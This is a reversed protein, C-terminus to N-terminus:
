GIKITRIPKQKAEEKKPISINLVGDKYTAAIKDANASEPLTFSRRFSQYNFERMTYKGNEDKEENNSEKESSITLQNNDAEVKFDNKSMGPAALEVHFTDETEKVNVSPMTGVMRNSYLEDNFFDDFLNSFGPFYSRKSPNYKVLTM